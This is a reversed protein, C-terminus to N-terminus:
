AVVFRRAHLWGHSHHEFEVMEWKRNVPEYSIGPLLQKCAPTFRAVV